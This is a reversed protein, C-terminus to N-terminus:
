RSAAPEEPGKLITFTDRVVAKDDIFTADLRHGDFDLVLSGLVNLSLFNVPHNLDGGSTQGSSGAVVYIAGEHPAPGRSDTECLRRHRGQSRGEHKQFAVKENLTRPFATSDM